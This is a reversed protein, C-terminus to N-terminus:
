SGKRQPRGIIALAMNDTVHPSQALADLMSTAAESFNDTHTACCEALTPYFEEVVLDAVGDSCIIIFDDDQWNATGSGVEGIIKPGVSSTLHNSREGKAPTLIHRHQRSQSSAVVAAGDGVYAYSYTNANAITIILTSRLSTSLPMGNIVANLRLASAAQEIALIATSEVNPNGTGNIIEDAVFIAAASVALYSAVDGGAHGGCGDAVIAITYSCYGADIAFSLSFDEQRARPGQHIAAGLNQIEFSLVEAEVENNLCNVFQKLLDHPPLPTISGTEKSLGERALSAESSSRIPVVLEQWPLTSPLELAVRRSPPSWIDHIFSAFRLFGSEFWRFAIVIGKRCRPQLVLLNIIGLLTILIAIRDHVLNTAIVSIM